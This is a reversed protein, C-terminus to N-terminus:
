PQQKPLVNEQEEKLRKVIRQLTNLNAEFNGLLGSYSIEITDLWEDMDETCLASIDGMLRDLTDDLVQRERKTPKRM